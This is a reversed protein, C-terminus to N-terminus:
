GRGEAALSTAANDPLGAEHALFGEFVLLLWLVTSHDFRGSEHERVLRTLAEPQFLGSDLMAEGMLRAHLRPAGARFQAALPMAFGQKRRYLIEGPVYPALARKLVDKGSGRRLKLAPPLAFGWEVFARDLLPARAELSVAMSARDVKVLIDGPLYTNIDVYQAQALPAADEDEAMLALIRAGPDHGDLRARLGPSLLARRQAAQTKTVTRYYGLASDLSIETLTHKARLWRPARDLKPYARALPALAHRRLPAPLLRRVAEALVHFRYRRYGGLVEDGGDGSLAVTVHRRALACVDRTPVSSHDGFPEGFMRAQARAAAIYDIETADTHHNTHYREAMLAAFPREDDAGPFGITFTDLPTPRMMAARAVVGSSDIGGSLFAGLPVDAVLRTAVARDLHGLLAAEAEPASIQLTERALSWYRRPAPRAGETRDLLLYHAAPLKRIGEFISAPDPIYGLAFFDDVAAADIRRSLDPVAALAVLESAFVLAGDPRYGYYLPKKGLHDRALLLQGRRRDWLAIAFMGSFRQLCAVGWEEWAHLIIETDSRSQFVHGAAELEPRLDAHNYIEGNFVVVVAGDENFMPQHGGAIDIVALRRHGLGIGPETHFGDGDPGRHSLATTMRRLLGADVESKAAHFIGALGCM